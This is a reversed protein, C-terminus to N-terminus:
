LVHIEGHRVPAMHESDLKQLKSGRLDYTENSSLAEAGHKFNNEIPSIETKPYSKIRFWFQINERQTGFVLFVVLPLTSMFIYTLKASPVFVLISGVIFTIFSYATFITVRVILHYSAGFGGRQHTTRFVKRLISVQFAITLAVYFMSFASVAYIIGDSSITCYFVWKKTVSSPNKVGYVVCVLTFCLFSAWPISLLTTAGGFLIKSHDLARLKIWLHLSLVLTAASVMVTSAYIMSAQTLCLGFDPMSDNAQGGYFVILNSTTYVLWCVLLNIMTPHRQSATKTIAATILALPIGVHGGLVLLIFFITLYADMILSYLVEFPIKRFDM